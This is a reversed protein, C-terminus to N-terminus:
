PKGNKKMRPELIYKDLLYGLLALGIFGFGLIIADLMARDGLSLTTM